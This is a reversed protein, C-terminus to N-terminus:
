SLTLSPARPYVHTQEDLPAPNQGDVTHTLDILLIYTSGKQYKHVPEIRNMVKECKDVNSGWGFGSRVEDMRKEGFGVEDQVEEVDRGHRWQLRDTAPHRWASSRDSWVKVVQSWRRTGRLRVSCRRKETTIKQQNGTKSLSLSLSHKKNFLCM